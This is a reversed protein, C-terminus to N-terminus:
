DQASQRFLVSRRRPLFPISSILLVVKRAMAIIGTSISTIAPPITGHGMIEDYNEDLVHDMTVMDIMEGESKMFRTENSTEFVTVRM